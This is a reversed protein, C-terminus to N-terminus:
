NIIHYHVKESIRSVAEFFKKKGENQHQIDGAPSLSVKQGNLFTDHNDDVTFKYMKKRKIWRSCLRLIFIAVIQDKVVNKM